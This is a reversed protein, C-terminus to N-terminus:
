AGERYDIIADAPLKKYSTVKYSNSTGSLLPEIAVGEIFINCFVHM